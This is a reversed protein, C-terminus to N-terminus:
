KDTCGFEVEGGWGVRYFVWYFSAKTRWSACIQLTRVTSWLSTDTSVIEYGLSTSTLDAHPLM